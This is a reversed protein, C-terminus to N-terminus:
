SDFGIKEKIVFQPSHNLSIYIRGLYEGILGLMLMLVGGIFLLAAMLSSYGMIANPNFLKNIITFIAYFFGIFAFIFGSFTAIRLPKVSFATFGNFWLQVLKLFSYNSKGILRPNHNVIINTINNSSRILLGSVYPYPNTYKKIEEVVFRRCSFFSSITLNKPKNILYSAMINNIHSGFNRFSSHKKEKYKAFVVDYGDKIKDILKFIENAPTQGDDDLCTVIDGNIFNLGAMIAGHQGFNRSLNIVKIKKNKQTLNILVKLTDDPSEDNVLIIEYNNIQKENLTHVLEFVVSSITKESCYCPIVFSLKM